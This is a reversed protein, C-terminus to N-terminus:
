APMRDGLQKRVFTAFYESSKPLPCAAWAALLADREAPPLAHVIRRYERWTRAHHDRMYQWWAARETDIRDLRVEPTEFETQDVFLALKNKQRKIAREAHQIRTPTAGTSEWKLYQRYIM